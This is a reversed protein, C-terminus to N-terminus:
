GWSVNTQIIKAPIGVVMCNDPIDNVVVSKAGIICNNGVTVNKLITTGAGILVHNGIRVYGDKQIMNIIHFDSDLITVNNSIACDYGIEIRNAASILVGENVYTGNGLKLIANEGVHINANSFFSVKGEIFLKGNADIRLKSYERASIANANLFLNGKGEVANRHIRYNTTGKDILIRKSGNKRNIRFSHIVSISKNIIRMIVVQGM